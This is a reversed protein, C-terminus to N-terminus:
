SPPTTNSSHKQKTLESHTTLNTPTKQSVSLQAFNPAALKPARGCLGALESSAEVEDCLVAM